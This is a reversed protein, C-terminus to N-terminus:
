NNKDEDEKRKEDDEKFYLYACISMLALTLDTVENFFREHFNKISDLFLNIM